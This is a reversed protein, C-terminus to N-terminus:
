GDPLGARPNLEFTFCRACQLRPVVREAIAGLVKGGSPSFGVAIPDKKFGALADPYEDELWDALSEIDDANVQDMKNAM